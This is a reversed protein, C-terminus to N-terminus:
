PGVLQFRDRDDYPPRLSLTGRGTPGTARRRGLQRRCNAGTRLQERTWFIQHPPRWIMENQGMILVAFEYGDLATMLGTQFEYRIVEFLPGLLIM